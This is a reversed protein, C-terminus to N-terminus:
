HLRSTPPRESKLKEIDAETLGLKAIEETAYLVALLDGAKVSGHKLLDEGDDLRLKLRPDDQKTKYLELIERAKQILNSLSPVQLGLEGRGISGLNAGSDVMLKLIKQSERYLSECDKKHSDSGGVQSGEAPKFKGENRGVGDM